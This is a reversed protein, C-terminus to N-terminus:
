PALNEAVDAGNQVEAAADRLKKEVVPPLGGFTEIGKEEEEGTDAIQGIDHGDEGKLWDAAAVAMAVVM